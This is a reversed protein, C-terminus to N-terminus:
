SPRHRLQRHEGSRTAFYLGIYFILTDLLVQPSGDGLLGKAWLMDEHRINIIEAQQKKYIGTSRLRNMEADLTSQFRIFKSDTLIKVDACDCYKLSIQLGSCIIYLSDPPFNQKDKRRVDLM